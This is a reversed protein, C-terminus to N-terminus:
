NLSRAMLTSRPTPAAVLAHRGFSRPMLRPVNEAGDAGHGQEAAEGPLVYLGIARKWDAIYLYVRHFESALLMHNHAIFNRVKELEDM